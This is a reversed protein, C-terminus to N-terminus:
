SDTEKTEPKSIRGDILLTSIANFALKNSIGLESAIMRHIGIPWPNNPLLRQVDNLLLEDSVLTVNQRLLSVGLNWFASGSKPELIARVRSTLQDYIDHAKLGEVIVRRLEKRLEMRLDLVTTRAVDFDVLPGPTLELDYVALVADDGRRLLKNLGGMTM